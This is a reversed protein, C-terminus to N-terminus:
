FMLLQGRPSNFKKGNCKRCACQVNTWTHLGGRSLPIIHDLEPANDDYSGRKSLPTRIGCLQCKWKDRNFVEYPDIREAKEAKRRIAKEHQKSKRRSSAACEGCMRQRKGLWACGCDCLKPAPPCPPLVPPKPCPAMKRLRIVKLRPNRVRFARVNCVRTCYQKHPNNIPPVFEAGCVACNM